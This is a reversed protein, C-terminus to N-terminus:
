FYLYFVANKLNKKVKQGIECAELKRTIFASKRINGAYSTQM